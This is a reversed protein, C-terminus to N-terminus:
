AYYIGLVSRCHPCLIITKRGPRVTELQKESEIIENCFGCKFSKDKGKTIKIGM